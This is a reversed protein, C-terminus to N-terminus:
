YRFVEVANSFNSSPGIDRFWCQFYWTEGFQGVVTGTPSPLSSWDFFLSFVGFQGSNMVEGPRNFRGVSGQLCLNGQSGGPNAVFGSQNSVLFHGFSNPPMEFCRLTAAPAGGQGFATARIWASNGTSNLNAACFQNGIPQFSAESAIAGSVETDANVDDRATWVVFADPPLALPSLEGGDHISAIGVTALQDESTALFDRRHSLGLRLEDEDRVVNAVTMQVRSEQGPGDTQYAIMYGPFTQAIRPSRHNEDVDLNQMTHINRANDASGNQAVVGFIKYQGAVLRRFAVVWYPDGFGPFAYSVSSVDPELADSFTYVNFQNSSAAMAGTYRVVQGRINHNTPSIEREWVILYENEFNSTGPQGSSKSISPRRDLDTSDGDVPLPSGMLTSDGTVAQLVIDFDQNITDAEQWVVIYDYSSGVDNGKGGVDVNTAGFGSIEFQPGRAGTDADRTRGWIKESGVLIGVVSVCLFQEEDYCSANKPSGWSASTIDISSATLLLNQAVDYNVSIVDFDLASQVQSYVIQYLENNAEYAVDVDVQRRNDATVALTSVIPDVTIPFTAASVFHEPVVIRLGGDTLEQHLELTQGKADLAIAKGYRVEGLENSFTFGSDTAARHLETKVSVELVVEQRATLDEFVFTQEVSEQRLHYVERLSGRELEVTQGARSRARATMSLPEGGVRVETLDFAVPYNQPADSGFFPIYTMGEPGFSAKWQAGRAWTRGDGPEDILLGRSAAALAGEPLSAPLALESEGAAPHDFETAQLAHALNPALLAAFAALSATTTM